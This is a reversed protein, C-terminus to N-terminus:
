WIETFNFEIKKDNNIIFISKYKDVIWNINKKYKIRTKFINVTNYIRKKKKQINSIDKFNFDNSGIDAHIWIHSKTFLFVNFKILENIM